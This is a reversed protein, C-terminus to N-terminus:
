DFLWIPLWGVPRVVPCCALWREGITVRLKGVSDGFVPIVGVYLLAFQM